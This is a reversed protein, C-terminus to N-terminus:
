FGGLLGARKAWPPQGASGKLVQASSDPAKDGCASLLAKASRNEKGHEVFDNDESLCKPKKLISNRPMRSRGLANAEMGAKAAGSPACDGGGQGRSKAAVPSPSRPALSLAAPQARAQQQHQSASLERLPLRGDSSPEQAAEMVPAPLAAPAPPPATLAVANQGAGLLQSEEVSRELHRLRASTQALQKAEDAGRLRLESVLAQLRRNEERLQAEEHQESIAALLRRKEESEPGGRPLSGALSGERGSAVTSAADIRRLEEPALRRLLEEMRQGRHEATELQEQLSESLRSQESLGVRLDELKALLEGQRQAWVEERELLGVRCRDVMSREYDSRQLQLRLDGAEEQQRRDRGELEGRRREGELARARWSALEQELRQTTEANERQLDQLQAAIHERQQREAEGREGQLEAVQRRAEALILRLSEEEMMHGEAEDEARLRAVRAEDLHGRTTGLEEELAAVESGRRELEEGLATREAGLASLEEEAAEARRVEEATRTESAELRGTLESVESRRVALDAEAECRRAESASLAQAVEQHRQESAELRGTLESVESRRVALDAEAECCRAESADLAQAVEQHRQEFHEKLNRLHETEVTLEAVRESGESTLQRELTANRTELFRLRERVEQTMPEVIAGGGVADAGGECLTAIRLQSEQLKDELIALEGALRRQETEAASRQIEASRTQAETERQHLELDKLKAKWADLQQGTGKLQGVEQSLADRERVVAEYKEPWAQLEMKLDGVEELRQSCREWRTRAIAYEAERAKALALEERLQQLEEQAERSGRVQQRLEQVQSESEKLRKELNWSAEFSEFEGDLVASKGKVAEVLQRVHLRLEENERLVEESAVRDAAARACGDGGPTGISSRRCAGSPTQSCAGGESKRGGALSSKPTRAVLSGLSTRSGGGAAGAGGIGNLCREVADIAQMLGGQLDAPLHMITDVHSERAECCVAYVLIHRWLRAVDAKPELDAKGAKLARKVMAEADIEAGHAARFVGQLCTAVLETSAAEAGFAEGQAAWTEPCLGRVVEAMFAEEVLCFPTIRKSPALAAADPSSAELWRCLWEICQEVEEDSEAECVEAGGMSVRLSARHVRCPAPSVPTEAVTDCGSPSAM